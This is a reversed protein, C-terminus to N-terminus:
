AVKTGVHIAVTGFMREQYVVNQLGGLEMLHQLVKPTPFDVTSQPLYQYAQPDGSVIGGLLPVFRFFYLSFFPGLLSNSPPTIELCVVRGGPKTVRAQERFAAARDVVNRIMFGSVVADFTHDPYPLAFTDGQTFPLVRGPMKGVGAAMMEYTFDSGFAQVGPYRQMAAYAIDGTGTGVDLLTGHPPLNCYDLLERRWQQDQGLSMLRNVLDYTAAIRAFMHNVFQPKDDTAPLITKESTM